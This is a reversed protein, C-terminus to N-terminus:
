PAKEGHKSKQWELQEAATPNSSLFGFYERLYALDNHDNKAIEGSETAICLLYDVILSNNGGASVIEALKPTSKYEVAGIKVTGIETTATKLDVENLTVNTPRECKPYRPDPHAPTSVVPPTGLACSTFALLAALYAPSMRLTIM